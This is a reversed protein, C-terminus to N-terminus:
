SLYHVNYHGQSLFPLKEHQSKYIEHYNNKNVHKDVVTTVKGLQWVIDIKQVNVRALGLQWVIV